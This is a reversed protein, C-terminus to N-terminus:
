GKVKQIQIEHIEGERIGSGMAGNSYKGTAITNFVMRILRISQIRASKGQTDARRQTIGGHNDHDSLSNVLPGLCSLDM